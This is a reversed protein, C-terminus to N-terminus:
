GWLGKEEAFALMVDPDPALPDFSTRIVAEILARPGTTQPDITAERVGTKATEPAVMLGAGEFGAKTLAKSHAKVEGRTLPTRLRLNDGTVFGAPLAPQGTGDWDVTWHRPGIRPYAVREPVIDREMDSWRLWSKIQGEEAFSTQWPSGCYIVWGLNQPMHYHGTVLLKCPLGALPLGSTDRKMRNMYAGKFGQHAWIVPQCIDPREGMAEVAARWESSPRYPMMLGLHTWAPETYVRVNDGELGELCHRVREYQDHNGPIVHVPGGIARLEDGLQNWTPMDVATGQDFLDGPIVTEGGSEAVDRRIAALAQWVFPASAASLHLDSTARVVLAM